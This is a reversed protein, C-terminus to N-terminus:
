SFLFINVSEKLCAAAENMDSFSVGNAAIESIRPSASVSEVAMYSLTSKFYSFFHGSFM